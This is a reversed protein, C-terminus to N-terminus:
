RSDPDRRRQAPIHGESMPEHIGLGCSRAPAATCCRSGPTRAPRLRPAPEGVSHRTAPPRRSKDQTSGACFGPGHVKPVEGQGRSIRLELSHSSRTGSAEPHLPPTHEGPRVARPGYSRSSRCRSRLEPPQNKCREIHAGLSCSDARAATGFM